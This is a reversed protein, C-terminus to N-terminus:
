NLYKCINRVHSSVRNIRAEFSDDIMKNKSVGEFVVPSAPQPLRNKPKSTLIGRKQEQRKLYISMKLLGINLEVENPFHGFNVVLITISKRLNEFIQNLVERRDARFNDQIMESLRKLTWFQAQGGVEKPQDERTTLSIDPPQIGVYSLKTPPGSNEQEEFFEVQCFFEDNQLYDELKDTIEGFLNYLSQDINFTSADISPDNSGFFPEWSNMLNQSCHIMFSTIGRKGLYQLLVRLQLQLLFIKDRRGIFIHSGSKLKIMQQLTKKISSVMSGKDESNLIHDFSVKLDNKMIYSSRQNNKRNPTSNPSKQTRSKVLIDTKNTLIVPRYHRVPKNFFASIKLRTSDSVLPSSTAGKKRKNTTSKQPTKSNRQDATRNFPSRNRSKPSAKHSTRTGQKMNRYRNKNPSRSSNLHQQTLVHRPSEVKLQVYATGSNRSAKEKVVAKSNRTQNTVVKGDYQLNTIIEENEEMFVRQIQEKSTTKIM